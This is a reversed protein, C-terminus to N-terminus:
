DKILSLLSNSPRRESEKPPPRRIVRGVLVYYRNNRGVHGRDVRLCGKKEASRIARRVVSESCGCYKALIKMSPYARDGYSLLVICVLKATDSLEVARILDMGIQCFQDSAM